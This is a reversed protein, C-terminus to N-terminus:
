ESLPQMTRNRFKMLEHKGEKRNPSSQKKFEKESSPVVTASQMGCGAVGTREVVVACLHLM